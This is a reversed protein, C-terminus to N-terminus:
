FQEYGDLFRNRIDDSLTVEVGGPAHIVIKYEGPEKTQALAQLLRLRHLEREEEESKKRVEEQWAKYEELTKGMSRATEAQEAERQKAEHELRQEEYRKREGRQKAVQKAHFSHLEKRMNTLSIGRTRVEHVVTPQDVTDAPKYFTDLWELGNAMLNVQNNIVLDDRCLDNDQDTHFRVISIYRSKGKTTPSEVQELYRGYFTSEKAMNHLLFLWAVTGVMSRESAANNGRLEKVLPEMEVEHIRLLERAVPDNVRNHVVSELSRM